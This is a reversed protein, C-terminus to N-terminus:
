YNFYNPKEDETILQDRKFGEALLQCQMDYNM